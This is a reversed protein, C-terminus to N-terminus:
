EKRTSLVSHSPTVTKSTSGSFTNDKIKRGRIKEIIRGSIKLTIIIITVMILLLVTSCAIYVAASPSEGPWLTFSEKCHFKNGNSIPQDCDGNPECIPFFMSGDCIRQQVCRFKQSQNADEWSKKDIVFKDSDCRVPQVDTWVMSTVESKTQLAWYNDCQMASCNQPMACDENTECDYFQDLRKRVCRFGIVASLMLRKKSNDM